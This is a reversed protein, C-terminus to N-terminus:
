IKTADSAQGGLMFPAHFEMKVRRSSEDQQEQGSDEVKGPGCHPGIVGLGRRIGHFVGHDLDEGGQAIGVGVFGPGLLRRAFDGAAAHDDLAFADKGVRVHHKVGALDLHLGVLGAVLNGRGDLGDGRANVQGHELQIVLGQEVGVRRQRQRFGDRVDLVGHQDIAIRLAAVAKRDGFADNGADLEGRVIKGNGAQPDLNIGGDVRAVAAARGDGAVFHDAQREAMEAVRLVDTVDNGGLFNVQEQPVDRVAM